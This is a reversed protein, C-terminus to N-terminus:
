AATSGIIVIEYDAANGVAGNTIKLLDGTGATVAVGVSSWVLVILNGPAIKIIDSADGFAAAWGNAAAPGVSFTQLTDRNKIALFKVKALTITNGLNDTLGGALDLEENASDALPRVDHFLRNAQGSGTGNVLNLSFIKSLHDVLSNLDKSEQYNVDVMLALNATLTTTM